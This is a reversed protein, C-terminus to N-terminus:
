DVPVSPASAAPGVSASPILVVGCVIRVARPSGVPADDRAPAEFRRRRQDADCLGTDGFTGTRRTAGDRSGSIATRRYRTVAGARTVREVRTGYLLAEDAEQRSRLRHDSPRNVMASMDRDLRWAALARRLAAIGGPQSTTVDGHALAEWDAAAPARLAAGDLVVLLREHRVHVIAMTMPRRVFASRMTLWRQDDRVSLPRTCLRALTSCLLADDDRSVQRMRRRKETLLDHLAQEAAPPLPAPLQMVRVTDVPAGIRAARGLRQDLRAATWPLDLHVVTAVGALSLGESLVDTTLLLRVAHHHQHYQPSLCRALVEARSIAGSAIRAGSGTLLAIGTERHLLHFFATATAGFQTFAVVPHTCRRALRRLVDGREVDGTGTLFPLLEQLARRQERASAAEAPDRIGTSPALLQPFALQVTDFDSLFARRVSRTPEIGADAAAEIAITAAIRRHIRVRAAADSSRLAHLLGLQLLAHAERSDTRVRPLSSLRAPLATHPIPLRPTPISRVVPMAYRALADRDIALLQSLSRRLTLRRRVHAISQRTPPLHFLHSIHALDHVTNQIPTASLLLVTAGACIATTRHYRRTSRTRLHHAEDVIVFPHPAILPDSPASLRETSVFVIPVSTEEAARHWRQRLAAPAIVLATPQWEAALALAVYTKGLGPPDALLAGGYRVLRPRMWDVAAIQHPLLSINGIRLIREAPALARYKLAGLAMRQVTHPPRKM